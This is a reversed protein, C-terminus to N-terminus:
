LDNGRVRQEAQEGATQSIRIKLIVRTGAPKGDLYLDQIRFDDENDELGGNILALRQRTIGIGMSKQKQASKSTSGEAFSRGVGDDSITCILINKEVRLRINLRGESQKHMLGHWIANEVFPQFILPPIFICATDVKPDIDFGYVFSEKFRLKEMELYLRLMELEDELSILPMKSHNLVMRILRSFKTLYDSAADTENKLVFKNISTLCNFIFHPNMQARLAQMELERALNRQREKEILRARRRRDIMWLLVISFLIYLSWAEWTLWWPPYIMVKIATGENNWLGENNSGKVRFIYAGPAVDTYDASRRTRSYVWDKDVGELKYAYQNKAPDTYNLASFEFSFFNQDHALALTQLNKGGSGDPSDCLPRPNNFLKFQTIVIPPIYRNPRLLAPDMATLGNNGSKFFLMGNKGKCYFTVVRDSKPSNPYDFNSFQRTQPSFRCIGKGTGLWLNGADDEVVSTVTNDLLGDKETYTSFKGTSVEYHCLGGASTGMWLDGKKDGVIANVYNSSISSSDGFRFQYHEFRGTGPDLRDTAVSGHGIWIFGQHDEWICNAQYDSMGEPRAPDHDYHRITGKKYDLATVGSSAEGIWIIGGRDQYLVHYIRGAEVFKGKPGIYHIFKGTAPDLRDLTGEWSCVWIMGEDDELVASTMDNALSSPDAPDHRFHRFRGSSKDLADLGKMTAVWLTGNRDETAGYVWDNALSFRDHVDHKYRAVPMLHRDLKNIGTGCIWVNGPKDVVIRYVGPEDLSSADGDVHRFHEFRQRASDLRDVGFVTAIWLNHDLDEAMNGFSPCSFSYPNGPDHRYHIFRGTKRDLRNLASDTSIWLNGAHDELIAAVETGALSGSDSPDSFYHKFHATQPDFPKGPTLVLQHLGSKNGIWLENHSDQYICNVRDIPRLDGPRSHYGLDYDFSSFQGTRRDFRRLEGSFSGIWFMGEKDQNISSVARLVTEYRNAPQPPRFSIFKERKRDFKTIGGEVTGIWLSGEDDEFLAFILDQNLSLSDHPDFKYTVFNYGDYRSLGNGTAAWLFGERDFLMGMVTNSPLGQEMTLHEFGGLPRQAHGPWWFLVALSLIIAFRTYCPNAPM